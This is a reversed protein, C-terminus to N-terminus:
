GSSPATFPLASATTTLEALMQDFHARDWKGSVVEVPPLGPIQVFGVTNGFNIELLEPTLRTSLRGLAAHAISIEDADGDLLWIREGTLMYHDGPASPEPALATKQRFRLSSAGEHHDDM